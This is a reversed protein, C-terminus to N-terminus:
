SLQALSGFDTDSSDEGEKETEEETDEKSAQPLGSAQSQLQPLEIGEEPIVTEALSLVGGVLSAAGLFFLLKAHPNPQIVTQIYNIQPSPAVNMTYSQSGIAILTFGSLISFGSFLLQIIRM